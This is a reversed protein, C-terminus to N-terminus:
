SGTGECNAFCYHSYTAIGNCCVSTYVINGKDSGRFSQMSVPDNGGLPTELFQRAPPFRLLWNSINVPHRFFGGARVAVFGITERVPQGDLTGLGVARGLFTLFSAVKHESAGCVADVDGGLSSAPPLWCIDHERDDPDMFNYTCVEMCSFLLYIVLFGRTFHALQATETGSLPIVHM